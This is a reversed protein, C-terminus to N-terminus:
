SPLTGPLCCVTPRVMSASPTRATGPTCIVEFERDGCVLRQGDELSFDPAVSASRAYIAPEFKKRVLELIASHDFHSHTLIVQEVLKKDGGTPQHLIRDVVSPDIGVDVLTNMDTLAHGNGQVLYVNCSYIMSSLNTLNSIQM